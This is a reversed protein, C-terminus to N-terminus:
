IEKLSSKGGPLLLQPRLGVVARLLEPGRSITGSDDGKKGRRKASELKDFSGQKQTKKKPSIETRCGLESGEGKTEWYRIGRKGKGRIM